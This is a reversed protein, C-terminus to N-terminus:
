HRTLVPPRIVPLYPLRLTFPGKDDASSARYLGDREILTVYPKCVRLVTQHVDSFQRFLLPELCSDQLSVLVHAPLQAECWAVEAGFIVLVGIDCLNQHDTIQGELKSIPDVIWRGNFSGLTRHANILM